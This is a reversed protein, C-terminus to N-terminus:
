KIEQGVINYKKGNREVIVKGNEIRKVARPEITVTEVDTPVEPLPIIEFDQWVPTEEYLQKAAKKVYLKVQPRKGKDASANFCLSGNKTMGSQHDAVVTPPVLAMCVIEEMARCSLFANDGIATTNQGLVVRRLATRSNFLVAPVESLGSLEVQALKDCGNFLNKSDTVTVNEGLVLETLAGCNYFVSSGLEGSEIVARELSSCGQFAQDGITQVSFPVAVERLSFCGNFANKGISTLNDPLSVSVLSSNGRFGYYSNGSSAKIDTVGYVNGDIVLTDKVVACTVYKKVRGQMVYCDKVAATRSSANYEYTISDRMVTPLDAAAPVSLLASLCVLSIKSFLIKKM